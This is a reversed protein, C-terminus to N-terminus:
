EKVLYGVMALNLQNARELLAHCSIYPINFFSGLGVKSNYQTCGVMDNGAMQKM